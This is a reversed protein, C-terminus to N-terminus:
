YIEDQEDRKKNRQKIISQKEKLRRVYTKFDWGKFDSLRSVKMASESAEQEQNKSSNAIEVAIGPAKIGTRKFVPTVLYKM